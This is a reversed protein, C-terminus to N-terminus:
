AMPTTQLRVQYMRKFRWGEAPTYRLSRWDFQMNLAKMDTAKVGFVFLM